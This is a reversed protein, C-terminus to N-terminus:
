TGLSCATFFMMALGSAKSVSSGTMSFWGKKSTTSIWCSMSAWTAASSASTDMSSKLASLGESFFGTIKAAAVCFIRSGQSLALTKLCFRCSSLDPLFGLNALQVTHFAGVVMRRASTMACVPALSACSRSTLSMGGRMIILAPEARITGRSSGCVCSTGWCNALLARKSNVGSYLRTVLRLAMRTCRPSVRALRALRWLTLAWWNVLQFLSGALAPRRM